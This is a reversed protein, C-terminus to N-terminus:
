RQKAFLSSMFVGAADSLADVVRSPDVTTGATGPAGAAGADAGPANDAGTAQDRAAARQDNKCGHERAQRAAVAAAATAAMALGSAIAQRGAPTSAKEILAEGARRAEKPVKIGGIEKPIRFGKKDKKAM